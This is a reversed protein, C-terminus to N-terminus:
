TVSQVLGVVLGRGFDKSDLGQGWVLEGETDNERGGEARGWREEVHCPNSGRLWIESSYVPVRVTAHLQWPPGAEHICVCLSSCYRKSHSLAPLRSLELLRFSCPGSSENTSHYETGGRHLALSIDRM